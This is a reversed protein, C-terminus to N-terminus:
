HRPWSQTKKIPLSQPPPPPPTASFRTRRRPRRFNKNGPRDAGSTKAVAGSRGPNRDLRRASKEHEPFLRRRGALQFPATQACARRLAAALADVQGAAVNGLFHLTLHLHEPNIWRVVGGPSNLRQQVKKVDAAVEPEVAIAIFARVSDATSAAM